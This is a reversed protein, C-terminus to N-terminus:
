EVDRVLMSQLQRITIRGKKEPNILILDRALLIGVINSRDKHKYVPIRSYGQTYILRLLAKDIQTDIDLMFAKDLPTMVESVKKDHFELAAVLIKRENTDLLKEKEYMEFLGKM